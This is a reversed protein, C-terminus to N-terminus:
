RREMEVIMEQGSWQLFKREQIKAKLTDEMNSGFFDQGWVFRLM